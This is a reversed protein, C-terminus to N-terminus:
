ISLSAVTTNNYRFIKRMEYCRIFQGSFKYRWGRSIEVGRDVEWSINELMEGDGSLGMGLNGM